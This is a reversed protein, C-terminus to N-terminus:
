LRNLNTWSVIPLRLELRRQQRLLRNTGAPSNEEVSGNYARADFEPGDKVDTVVIKFVMEDYLDPYILEGESNRSGDRVQLTLKYENKVEYDLVVGRKTQVIGDQTVTFVDTDGGVAIVEDFMTFLGNTNYKDLDAFKVTDTASTKNEAVTIVGTKPDIVFSKSEDM